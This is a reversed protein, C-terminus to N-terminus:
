ATHIELGGVLSIRCEQHYCCRLNEAFVLNILCIVSISSDTKHLFAGHVEPLDINALSFVFNGHSGAM